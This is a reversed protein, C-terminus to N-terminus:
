YRVPGGPLGTFPYYGHEAYYVVTMNKTGSECELLGDIDEQDKFLIMSM